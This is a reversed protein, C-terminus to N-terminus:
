RWVSPSNAPWVPRPKAIHRRAYASAYAGREESTMSRGHFFSLQYGEKMLKFLQEAKDQGTM